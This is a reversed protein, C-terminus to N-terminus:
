IRLKFPCLFIICISVMDQSYDITINKTLEDQKKSLKPNILLTGDSRPILAIGDGSKIKVKNIWKKPLSIVYTSGGTIQVKRTEIEM